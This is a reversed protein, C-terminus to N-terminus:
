NIQQEYKRKIKYCYNWVHIANDAQADAEIRQQDSLMWWAKRTIYEPCNLALATAAHGVWARQNLAQNTLNHECSIPWEIVIRLMFSGYLLADGTFQIARPLLISEEEKSVIDWMNHLYDEWITYPHWVRM